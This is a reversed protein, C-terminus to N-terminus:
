EYEACKENIKIDYKIRVLKFVIWSNNYPPKETQSNTM